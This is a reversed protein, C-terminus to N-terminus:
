SNLKRQSQNTNLTSKIKKLDKQGLKIYSAIAREFGGQFAAFLTLVNSLIPGSNKQYKEYKEPAQFSPAPQLPSILLSNQFFVQIKRAKDHYIEPIRM